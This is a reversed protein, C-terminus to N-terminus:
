DGIQTYKVGHQAYLGQKVAEMSDTYPHNGMVKVESIGARVIRKMDDWCPQGTIYLVAGEIPIGLKAAQMFANEEAHLTRKCHPHVMPDAEPLDHKWGSFEILCGAETCHPEGPISGNYGTVLIQNDRVIVCGHQARKCTSRSAMARAVEFFTEDFSPRSTM